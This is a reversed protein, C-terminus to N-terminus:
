NVLASSRPERDDFTILQHLVNLQRNMIAATSVIAWLLRSVMLLNVFVVFMHSYYVVQHCMAKLDQSLERNCYYLICYVRCKFSPFIDCEKSLLPHCM